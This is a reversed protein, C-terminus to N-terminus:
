PAARPALPQGAEVAREVLLTVIGDGGEDTRHSQIAGRVDAYTAGETTFALRKLARTGMPTGSTVQQWMPAGTVVEAYATLARVLDGEEVQGLASYGPLAGTVLITGDEAEEILLGLPVRLQLTILNSRPLLPKINLM